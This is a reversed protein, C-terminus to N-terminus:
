RCSLRRFTQGTLGGDCPRLVLSGSWQSVCQQPANRPSLKFTDADVPQLEFRQNYLQHPSFLDVVTGAETAAFQVDLNLDVSYNRAEVVGPELEAITWTQRVDSSCEVLEILYSPDGLLLQFEGRALCLETDTVQLREAKLGSSEIRCDESPESPSGGAGPTTPAGAFGGSGCAEGLCAPSGGIGVPDEFFRYDTATCAFNVAGLLIVSLASAKPVMANKM